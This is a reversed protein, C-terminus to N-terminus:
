LRNGQSNANERRDPADVRTRRGTDAGLHRRRLGDEFDAQELSLELLALSERLAPIWHRQLTRVQRRTATVADDVIRVAAQDAAAAVAARAADLYASRACALAATEPDPAGLADPPPPEYEADGPMRVGMSVTERVTTHAADTPACRHLGGRGEAALARDLWRDAERAAEIWARTSAEAARHRARQEELLAHLKRELLDAGRQAADLRRRLRLRGARGPPVRIKTM